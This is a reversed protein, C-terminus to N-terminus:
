LWCAPSLGVESVVVISYNEGCGSSTDQIDLHTVPIANRIASELQDVGIGM